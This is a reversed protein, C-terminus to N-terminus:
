YFNCLFSAHCKADSVKITPPAVDMLEDISLELKSIKEMEMWIYIEISMGDDSLRLKSILAGFEYLKQM